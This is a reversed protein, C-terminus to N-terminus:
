DDGPGLVPAPATIEFTAGPEEALVIEICNGPGDTIMWAHTQFTPVVVTEGQNIGTHDVPTGETDIWVLGRYGDAKNVFTMEVPVDSRESKITGFNDCSIAQAKPSAAGRPANSALDNISAAMSSGTAQAMPDAAAGNRAAAGDHAGPRPARDCAATFKRLANAADTLRLKQQEGGPIGYILVDGTMMARWLPATATLVARLGSIGVEADKGYVKAPVEDTFDGVSLSLAVEQDEALDITDYWFVARPMAGDPGGCIAEFGVADTEPIGYTLIVTDAHEPVDSAYSNVSWAMQEEAGASPCVPFASILAFGIAYLAHSTRFPM